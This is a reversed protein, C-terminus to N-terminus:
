FVSDSVANFLILLKDSFMAPVITLVALIIMPIMMWMMGKEKELNKHNEYDYAEGPLFGKVVVPLLYGATLLASVLLVVPGLISFVNIGSKLAGIALYWKSLFGGTPPIGILALGAFAFCWITVPMKKGIGVLESAKTKGTKYIIAGAGLFLLAKSFAHFVVHLLSGTFAVPNLLALGFLIYSLQSVTSYALRKKLVDERYALMSGMFVTLLSLVLWAKQVWTGKIFDAGFVFFVVRIIGLVGGKVIIGSLVASAPAPAVPHATPLWAHMPFMGAKVSFGLIMLFASILMISENGQATGGATFPNIGMNNATFFLGFLVMYAGAFSYFMYKLGAMIAERSQNHLVLPATLITMLEYFAYFTVINGAFNLGMLIGFIVVYFGFYRKNKHEHKMYEWSFILGLLWVIGVVAAFIKGIIDAEFYLPMKETLNILTVKESNGTIVMVAFIMSIVVATLAYGFVTSRKEFIGKEPILLLILGALIPFLISLLIIM